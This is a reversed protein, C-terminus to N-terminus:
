KKMKISIEGKITIPWSMDEPLQESKVFVTGSLNQTKVFESILGTKKDLIATGKEDGSIKQTIEMGMAIVPGADKVPSLKSNIELEITNDDISNLKWINESDVTFNGRLEKNEKWTDGSKLKKSPFCIIIKSLDSKLNEKNYQTKVGEIMTAKTEEKKLDMKKIISNIMDDSGIIELIEGKTNIKASFKQGMLANYLKISEDLEGEPINESDYEVDGMMSEQKYQIKTYTVDITYSSKDMEKVEFLYDYTMNVKVNQDMGMITQNMDQKSTMEITFKDGKNLKLQLKIKKADVTTSALMLITLVLVGTIKKISKM